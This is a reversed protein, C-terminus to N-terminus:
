ELPNYHYNHSSKNLNDQNKPSIENNRQGDYNFTFKHQYNPSSNAAFSDTQCSHQLQVNNGYKKPFNSSNDQNMAGGDSSGCNYQGNSLGNSLKRSYVPLGSSNDFPSELRSLLPEKSRYITVGNEIRKEYKSM